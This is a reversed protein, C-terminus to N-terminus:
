VYRMGENPDTNQLQYFIRNFFNAVDSKLLGADDFAAVTAFISTIFLIITLPRMVHKLLQQLISAVLMKKRESIRPVILGSLLRLTWFLCCVAAMVIEFHVYYHTRRVLRDHSVLYSNDTKIQGTPMGPLYWFLTLYGNLIICVTLLLGFICLLSATMVICWQPALFAVSTLHAMTSWQNKNRSWDIGMLILCRRSILRRSSWVLESSWLFQWHFSITSPLQKTWEVCGWGVGRAFANATGVSTEYFLDSFNALEFGEIRNPPQTKVKSLQM